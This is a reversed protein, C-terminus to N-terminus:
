ATAKALSDLTLPLISRYVAADRGKSQARKSDSGRSDFWLMTARGQQLVLGRIQLQYGPHIQEANRILKM